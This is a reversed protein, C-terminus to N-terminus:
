ECKTTSEALTGILTIDDGDKTGGLTIAEPETLILDELPTDVDSADYLTTTVSTVIGNKEEIMPGSLWIPLELRLTASLKGSEMGVPFNNELQIDELRLESKAAWAFPADTAQISVSGYFMGLLQEVMQLQQDTNSALLLLELTIKYASPYQRYKTRTKSTRDADDTAALGDEVTIMTRRDTIGPGRQGSDPLSLDTMYMSMMPLSTLKTGLTIPDSTGKTHALAAAVRDISAYHMPVTILRSTGDSRRGTRVKLGSFIDMAALIYKRIQNDYFYQTFAM